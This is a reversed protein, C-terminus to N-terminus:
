CARHRRSARAVRDADATHPRDSGPRRRQICGPRHIRHQSLGEAGYSRRASNAGPRYTGTNPDLVWERLLTGIQDNSGYSQSQDIYPSTHNAYQAPNTTSGDPAPSRCPATSPLRRRRSGTPDSRATSRIMSRWRSRSPQGGGPKSVFDLGHDFFQGFLVFWGSYSPDAAYSNTNEIFNETYGPTM